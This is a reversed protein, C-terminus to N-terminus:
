MGEWPSNNESYVIKKLTDHADKFLSVKDRILRELAKLQNYVGRAKLVQEDRNVYMKRADVTDKSGKITLHVEARDLFAISEEKKVLDEADMLCKTIKFLAQSTIDRAIILDRLYDPTNLRNFDNGLEEIKKSYQAIRTIDVDLTKAEKIVLSLDQM